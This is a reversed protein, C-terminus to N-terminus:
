HLAPDADVVLDARDSMQEVTVNGPWHVEGGWLRHCVGFEGGFETSCDPSRGDEWNWLEAWTREETGFEGLVQQEGTLM